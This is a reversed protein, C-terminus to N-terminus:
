DKQSFEEKFGILELTALTMIKVTEAFEGMDISENIKHAQTLRGPGYVITQTLGGNKVVFRQDDMGPSLNIEMEKGLIKNGASKFANIIRQDEEVVTPDVELITQIDYDLLDGKVKLRDCITIIENKAWDVSQEPILRWDFSASCENPITNVKTGAAIMTTSLTSYRAAPPSINYQSKKQLQPKIKEEIANLVRLMGSIANHGESPMSGHSQIGKVIIKFWFTGRHGICIRDYDLPETIICYDTNDKTLWGSKTLYGMGLEGGTEEDPTSSSVLTGILKFQCRKITEMIFIQAAVGSKMDSAGRGYIINDQMIAEYPPFDWGQGAPVVDYHGSFHILPRENEGKMKGIVSIRPYQLSDPLIHSQLEAPVKVYTVDCGLSKMRDGLFQTCEEYNNGPPNETEIRIFDRLFVAMDPKLDEVAQIVRKVVEESLKM